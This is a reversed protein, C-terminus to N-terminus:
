VSVVIKGVHTSSEMFRHAEIIQELAFIRAIVPKFAGSNLGQAVFQRATALRLPDRTTEFLTYGRVTLGKSLAEALPFPTPQLALAGYAVITGGTATAKALKDLFPGAVADFILRAGMNGTIEKIRRTLNEEDTVIVHDAGASMLMSRKFPGRTTAVTTAGLAKAIQIAALGVSSSAASIVVTDDQRLGGIEVLAGYATLFAMWIAAGESLTLRGPYSVAVRAPVICSEGYVGYKRMSFAPITSVREGIRPESVDPGVADVVGAAEYGLRSPLRPRELYLAQRFLLEARNLGFAAVKIRVEGPGPTALPMEDLKLVEPGGTKHFRVIKPM